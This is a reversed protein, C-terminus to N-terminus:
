VLNVEAMPTTIRGRHVLGGVSQLAGHTVGPDLGGDLCRKEGFGAHRWVSRAREGMTVCLCVCSRDTEKEGM